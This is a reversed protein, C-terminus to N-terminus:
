SVYEEFFFKYTLFASSPPLPLSLFSSRFISKLDQGTKIPIQLKARLSLLYDQFTRIVFASLIPTFLPLPLFKLPNLFLSLVVHALHPVENSINKLYEKIVM